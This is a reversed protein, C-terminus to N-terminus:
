EFAPTQKKATMPAIMQGNPKVVYGTADEIKAKDIRLYHNSIMACVCLVTALVAWLLLFENM